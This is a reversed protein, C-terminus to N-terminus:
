ARAGKAALQAVARAYCDPTGIDLLTAESRFVIAQHAPILSMVEREFDYAGERWGRVQDRGLLYMGANIWQDGSADGTIFGRLDGDPGISLLGKARTNGEVRDARVAVLTATRPSRRHDALIPELPQTFWSDGNMGIFLPSCVQGAAFRLAGGTGLPSPEEVVEVDPLVAAHARVFARFQEALYQVSLLIRGCGERRLEQLRHLLFPAEGVPLLPKPTASTLAGLRTGKGGCLLVVDCESLRAM